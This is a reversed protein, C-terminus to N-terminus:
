PRCLFPSGNMRRNRTLQYRGAHNSSSHRQGRLRPRMAGTRTKGFAAQGKYAPNKLMGWVVSRDWYTKGSRTREGAQELRRCVEGITVREVGVWRYILRVVRAEEPIIEYRAEGGGETRTVYYYGYPLAVCSPWKAPVLPMASGRRSRELIKAHEYEAIMGQM